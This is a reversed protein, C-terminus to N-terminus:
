RRAKMEATLLRLQLTLEHTAQTQLDVRTSLANVSGTLQQTQAEVVAVRESLRAQYKTPADAISASLHEIQADRFMQLRSVLAGVVGAGCIIVLLLFWRPAIHKWDPHEETKPGRVLNISQMLRKVDGIYGDTLRAINGTSLKRERPQEVLRIADM